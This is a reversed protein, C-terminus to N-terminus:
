TPASPQGARAAPRHDQFCTQAGHLAHQSRAAFARDARDVPLPVEPGRRRPGVPNIPGPRSTRRRSPAAQRLPHHLRRRLRCLRDQPDRPDPAIYGSEGGGVAYWDSGASARRRDSRSAIRSPPTTRSRATSTTRFTTTPPSTTSSRPPSTRLRADLEQRRRDIITAGGDNGKIMRQPNAPDIWLGHNDGHPARICTSPRAATPRLPVHGTNLVYSPTPTRRSRRLHPHLVLRAPPLPADDNVRTWNSAAMTPASCAAKTRSRDPRLRARLGGGAVAVGIRGLMGEPLGNGTSSSGPTAATPRIQVPRQRPRRQDVGLAHPAVQWLAAFLRRQPNNRISPSTSPAPRPTATCCRRGPRAATPPASSAASRTRASRTASRRWSVIDPNKPHVVVAGIHRTDRLGVNRWTKGADLSKYVGDGYSINGRM